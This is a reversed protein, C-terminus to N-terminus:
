LDHKLTVMAANKERESERGKEEIEVQNEKEDGVPRNLRQPCFIKHVKVHFERWANASDRGTVVVEDYKLCFPDHVMSKRRITADLQDGRHSGPVVAPVRHTTLCVQRSPTDRGGDDLFPQANAQPRRLYHEHLPLTTIAGRITHCKVIQGNPLGFTTSALVTHM